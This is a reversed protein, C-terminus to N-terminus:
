TDSLTTNSVSMVRRTLVLRPRSVELADYWPTYPNHYWRGVNLVHNDSESDVKGCGSDKSAQEESYYTYIKQVLCPACFM